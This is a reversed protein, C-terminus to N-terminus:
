STSLEKNKYELMIKHKEDLSYSITDMFEIPFMEKLPHGWGSIPLMFYEHGFLASRESCSLSCSVMYLYSFSYMSFRECGLFNSALISNLLTHVGSEDSLVKVFWERDRAPIYMSPKMTFVKIDWVEELSVFSTYDDIVKLADVSVYSESLSITSSSDIDQPMDRIYTCICSFNYPNKLEILFDGIRVHTVIREPVSLSTFRYHPVADLRVIENYIHRQVM